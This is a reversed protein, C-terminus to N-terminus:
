INKKNIGARKEIEIYYEKKDGAYKILHIKCYDYVLNNPWRRIPKVIKRNRDIEILVRKELEDDLYSVFYRTNVRPSGAYFGSYM